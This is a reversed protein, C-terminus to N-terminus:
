PYGIDVAEVSVIIAEANETTAYLSVDLAVMFGVDISIAFSEQKSNIERAPIEVENIIDKTEADGMFFRVMGRSLAVEGKITINKVLSGKSNSSTFIEYFTGSGDLNTNATTMKSNSTKATLKTREGIEPQYVYGLCNSLYRSNQKLALEGLVSQSDLNNSLYRKM